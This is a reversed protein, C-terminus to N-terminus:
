GGAGGCAGSPAFDGILRRYEAESAGYAEGALEELKKRDRITVVGRTSRIAGFGELSHLTVTVTSRHAGIMQSMFEHTLHLDDGDIRDCCMLLWRALRAEMGCHAYSVLSHAIQVMRTHAYKLILARLTRSQDIHALFRATEIRLSEHGDIQVIKRSPATSSGLV